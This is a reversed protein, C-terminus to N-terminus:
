LLASAFIFFSYYSIRLQTSVVVLVNCSFDVFSLFLILNLALIVLIYSCIALLSDTTVQWLSMMTKGSPPSNFNLVNTIVHLTCM